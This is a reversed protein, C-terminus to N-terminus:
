AMTEPVTWGAPWTIVAFPQRTGRTRQLPGVQAGLPHMQEAIVERAASAQQGDNPLLHRASTTSADHEITHRIADLAQATYVTDLGSRRLGDPTPAKVVQAPHLHRPKGSRTPAHIGYRDLPTTAM